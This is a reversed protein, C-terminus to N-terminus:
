FESKILIEEKDHKYDKNYIIGVNYGWKLLFNFDSDIHKKLLCPTKMVDKENFRGYILVGM